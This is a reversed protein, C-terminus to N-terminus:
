VSVNLSGSVLLIKDYLGAKDIEDLYVADAKCLLDLSNM